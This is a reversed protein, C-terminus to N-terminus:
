GRRVCTVVNPHETISVPDDKLWDVVKFREKDRPHKLAEEILNESKARDSLRWLFQTNSDHNVTSLFGDIVVSVRPETPRFHSGTCLMATEGRNLWQNLEPDSVGIPDADLVTP